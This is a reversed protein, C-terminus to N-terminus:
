RSVIMLEYLSKVEADSLLGKGLKEDFNGNEDLIQIHEIKGQQARRADIMMQSLPEVFLQPDRVSAPIDESHSDLPPTRPSTSRSTVGRSIPRMNAFCSCWSSWYM